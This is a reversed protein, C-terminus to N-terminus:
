KHYKYLQTFLSYVNEWFLKRTRSMEFKSKIQKRFLIQNTFLDFKLSVVLLIKMADRLQSKLVRWEFSVKNLIWNSILVQSSSNLVTQDTPQM